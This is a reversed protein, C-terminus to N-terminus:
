FPARVHQDYYTVAVALASWVDKSIGYLPGPHAKRGIAQERTGGFRDILAQRVNPDKARASGCLHLKVAKRYIRHADGRGFYAQWFRGTWFVTEFVSRGVPMGFSEVMEIALADYQAGYTLMAVIEGNSDISFDGPTGGVLELWASHTPGPDIALIANGREPGVVTQTQGFFEHQTPHKTIDGQYQDTM